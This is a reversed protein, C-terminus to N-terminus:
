EFLDNVNELTRVTTNKDLEKPKMGFVDIFTLFSIIYFNYFYLRIFYDIEITLMYVFLSSSTIFVFLELKKSRNQVQNPRMKFVMISLIIIIISTVIYVFDDSTLSFEYNENFVEYIYTFYDVKMFYFYDLVSLITVIAIALYLTKFIEKKIKVDKLLMIMIVISYVISLLEIVNFVTLVNELV